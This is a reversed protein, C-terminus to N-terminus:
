LRSTVYDALQMPIRTNWRQAAQESVATLIQATALAARHLDALDLLAVTEEIGPPLSPPERDLVQSLGHWPYSTGQAAAWLSWVKDRAEHLRHHAEWTSGRRLYKDVDMLNIWALFAWAYIEDPLVSYADRFTPAESEPEAALIQDSTSRRYLTVFDPAAGGRRVEVEAMIALDLQVGNRMQAFARRVFSGPPGVSDRLVEVLDARIAQESLVAGEVRMVEDAGADGRAAEVGMAVDVDSLADAAGRGLSCGVSLSTVSPTDQCIKLLEFLLAQQAVLENPMTSLWRLGTTAHSGDPAMDMGM